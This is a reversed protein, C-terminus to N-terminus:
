GMDKSLILERCRISESICGPYVKERWGFAPVGMWVGHTFVIGQSGMLTHPVFNHTSIKM